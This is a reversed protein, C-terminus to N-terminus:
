SSLLYNKCAATGSVQERGLINTIEDLKEVVDPHSVHERAHNLLNELSTGGIAALCVLGDRVTRAENHSLIQALWGESISNVVNEIASTAETKTSQFHSSTLKVFLYGIGIVSLFSFAM